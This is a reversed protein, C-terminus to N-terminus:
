SNKERVQDQPFRPIKECLFNLITEIEAQRCHVRVFDQIRFKKITGAFGWQRLSTNQLGKAKIIDNGKTFRAKIDTQM